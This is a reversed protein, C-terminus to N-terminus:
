PIFNVYYDTQEQRSWYDGHGRAWVNPNMIFASSTSFDHTQFTFSLPDKQEETVEGVRRALSQLPEMSQPGMFGLGNDFENVRFAVGLVEDDRSIFMHLDAMGFAAEPFHYEEQREPRHFVDDEVAPALLLAKAFRLRDGKHFLREGLIAAARLGVHAGLSHTVLTISKAKHQDALETVLLYLATGALHAFEQADNFYVPGVDGPWTYGLFAYDKPKRGDRLLSAELGGFFSESQQLGERVTVNYGHIFLVVNRKDFAALQGGRLRFQGHIDPVPNKLAREGRSGACLYPTQLTNAVAQVAANSPMAGPTRRRIAGM